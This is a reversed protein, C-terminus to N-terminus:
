GTRVGPPLGIMIQAERRGDRLVAGVPMNPLPNDGDRARNCSSCVHMLGELHKVRRLLHSTLWTVSVALLLVLLVEILMEGRNDMM